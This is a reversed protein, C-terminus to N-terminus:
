AGIKGAAYPKVMKAPDVVRDFEDEAVFGLKLATLNAIEEENRLINVPNADVRDRVSWHQPVMCGASRGYGCWFYFQDV